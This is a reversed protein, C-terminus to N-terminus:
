RARLAKIDKVIPHKADIYTAEVNAAAAPLGHHSAIEVLNDM